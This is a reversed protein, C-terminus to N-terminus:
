TTWCCPGSCSCSARTKCPTSTRRGRPPKRSLRFLSSAPRRTSSSSTSCRPRCPPPACQRAAPDFFPVTRRALHQLLACAPPAQDRCVACRCLARSTCTRDTPVPRPRPPRQFHSHTVCSCVEGGRGWWGLRPSASMRCRFPPPAHSRIVLVQLGGRRCCLLAGGRTDHCRM